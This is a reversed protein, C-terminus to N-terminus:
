CIPQRIEFGWLMPTTAGLDVGLTSITFIAKGIRSMESVIMRLYSAREPVECNLLKEISLVWAHEYNIPSVYDLRDFFPINQLYTKYEILKETGRHLQGIEPEIRNILEGDLELLIRLVGHSSPHQPGFNIVTTETKKNGM